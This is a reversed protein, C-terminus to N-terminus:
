KALSLGSESSPLGEVEEYCEVPLDLTTDGNKINFKALMPVIFDSMAPNWKMEKLTDLIKGYAGKSVVFRRLEGKQENLTQKPKRGPDILEGDEKGSMTREWKLAKMAWERMAADNAAQYEEEAEILSSFELQDKIKQVVHVGAADNRKKEENKYYVIVAEIILKRDMRDLMLEETFGSVHKLRRAM